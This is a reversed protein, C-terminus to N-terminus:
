SSANAFIMGTFTALAECCCPMAGGASTCITPSYAHVVHGVRGRALETTTFGYDDHLRMQFARGKPLAGM